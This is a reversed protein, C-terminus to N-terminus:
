TADKPADPKPKKEERAKKEARYRRFQYSKIGAYAALFASIKVWAADYPLVDQLVDALLPSLFQTQEPSYIFGDWGTAGGFLLGEATLIVRASEPTWQQPRPLVPPAPARKDAGNPVAGPNKRPRGRGRKIEGIAEKLSDASDVAPAVDLAPASSPNNEM